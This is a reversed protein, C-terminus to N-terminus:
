DDPQSLRRPHNRPLRRCAWGTRLQRGTNRRTVTWGSGARSRGHRSGTTWPRTANACRRGSTGGYGKVIKTVLQEATIQKFYESYRPFHCYGPPFSAGTALDEDTLRELRLWRYLEEKAMGSNVPWVKVGRKIKAGLPGIEIPAPNGLLVAARSDGKIVVVRHGQKRAWTYVETAAYGSDVALQTIPVDLGSASTSTENLLGTLKEWVQPRSTDGEIVVFVGPTGAQTRSSGNGDSQIRPGFEKEENNPRGWAWTRKRCHGM